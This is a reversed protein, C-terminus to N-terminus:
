LRSPINAAAAPGEAPREWRTDASGVRREARYLHSDAGLIEAGWLCFACCCWVRGSKSMNQRWSVFNSNCYSVEAMEALHQSRQRDQERTVSSLCARTSQLGRWLFCLEAEKPSDPACGEEALWTTIQELEEQPCCPHSPSKIRYM